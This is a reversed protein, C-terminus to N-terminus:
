VASAKPVATATVQSKKASNVPSKLKYNGIKDVFQIVAMETADGQRKGLKLVRTYGGHRDKTAKAIENFLHQLLQDATLKQTNILYRAAFRRSSLTGAKAWTVLKEVRKQAMKAKTITTHLEHYAILDSVQQRIVMQTYARDKGRRNIYSM